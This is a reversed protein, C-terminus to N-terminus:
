SNCELPIIRQIGVGVSKPVQKSCDARVRNEERKSNVCRSDAQLRELQCLGLRRQDRLHGGHDAPPQAGHVRGVDVDGCQISVGGFCGAARAQAAGHARGCDVKHHLDVAAFVEYRPRRPCLGRSEGGPVGNGHHDCRGM